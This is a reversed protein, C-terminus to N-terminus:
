SNKNYVKFLNKENESEKIMGKILYAEALNKHSEAYDPKLRIAEQLYLIAKDTHGTKLFNKSWHNYLRVVDFGKSWANNFQEFALEQEGMDEYTIGLTIYADLLEPDLQLAKKAVEVSDQYRKLRWYVIGLNNYAQAQSTGEIQLARHLVDVANQLRGQNEYVVGLIIYLDGNQPFLSLAKSLIIEAQKFNRSNLHATALVKYSISQYPNIAIVKNAYDIAAKYNKTKMFILALNTYIIKRDVRKLTLAKKYATIAEEYKNEWELSVGLSVYGSSVQPEVQIAKLFLEKAKARNGAEDYAKGLNVNAMALNPSKNLVDTWLSIKDKWVNNRQWTFISLLLVAAVITTRAIVIKNGAMKYCWAAAALFLFMAPMYMRHEFIIHLPIISSEIILNLLLWFLAFSALRNQRFFLFILAVLGSIGLIALMTQPPAFLGTSLPFDYVLNLRSPLPLFLLSLYHLIVRTETLLRQGMTFDWGSYNGFIQAMPNELYLWCIFAFLILMGAVGAIIKNRHRILSQPQLLFFFEYGLIMFPLLASNEKSLLAMCGSLVAAGFLWARAYVSRALRARAYSYVCLLCFLTAMSSMRQVIYTVANTQLPHVAWLLAAFFAIEGTRQFPRRSFPTINLTLHALLYFTFAAAIHILINVLHYGFVNTGGFYHNLALSIHVLGRRKNPSLTAVESLGEFSIDNNTIYYNRFILDDDLIFPSVFTNSYLATLLVVFLFFAGISAPIWKKLYHMLPQSAM